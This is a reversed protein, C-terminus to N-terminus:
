QCLAIDKAIGNKHPANVFANQAIQDIIPSDKRKGQPFCGSASNHKM